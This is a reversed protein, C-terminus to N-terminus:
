MSKYSLNKYYRFLHDYIIMEYMRQKSTYQRNLMMHIHHALFDNIPLQIKNKIQLTRDSIQNHKDNIINFFDRFDDKVKTTLCDVIENSLEQYKKSLEKKLTKDAEFEKKFSSQLNNLIALKDLDPISFSNLFSDISCLSFLVAIEKKEFTNKLSLYQIIMESDKWFLFESDKMTNKGYRELERKYTDTQIKWVLNEKLLTNLTPYLSAIVKSLDTPKKILFRIRFHSDTDKYRIFFWQQIIQKKKLKLIIPYLKELLIFDTTQVGTYIKYYLWESGLCLDRQM